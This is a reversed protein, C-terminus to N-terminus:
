RSDGRSRRWVKHENEILSVLLLAGVTAGVVVCALALLDGLSM